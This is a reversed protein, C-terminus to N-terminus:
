VPMILNNNCDLLVLSPIFEIDNKKAIELGEPSDFSVEQIIGKAIDDAHLAEEGKCPDCWKATLLVLKPRCVKSGSYELVVKKLCNLAAKNNEIALCDQTDQEHKEM